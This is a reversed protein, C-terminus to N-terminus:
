QVRLDAEDPSRLSCLLRGQHGEGKREMELDDQWIVSSIFLPSFFDSRIKDHFQPM